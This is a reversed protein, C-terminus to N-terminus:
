SPLADPPPRDGRLRAPPVIADELRRAASADLPKDFFSVQYRRPDSVVAKLPDRRVVAALEDRSRAVVAIDLKFEQAIIRAVTAAVRDGSARSTLVINGSQVYTAVDTFGAKELAARLAPMSVRNASGINIGRLMVIHRPM